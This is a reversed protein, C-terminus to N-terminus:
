FLSPRCVSSIDDRSITGQHLITSILAGSFGEENLRNLDDMNRIGGAAYIEASPALQAIQRLRLLDPGTKKGVRTVDLVILRESWRDPQECLAGNGMPRNARYDLSLVAQKPITEGPELRFTESGIVPTLRAHERLQGYQTLSTLGTDAWIELQPFDHALSALVDLHNGIGQIADLDAVYLREFPYINILASVVAHPRASPTISSQIPRYINRAGGVGRVVQGGM